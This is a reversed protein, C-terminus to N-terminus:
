KYSSGFAAIKKNQNKSVLDFSRLRTESSLEKLTTPTV